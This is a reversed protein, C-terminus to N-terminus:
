FTIRKFEALIFKFNKDGLVYAALFFVIIGIAGGVIIKLYMNDLVPIFLFLFGFMISSALFPTGLEKLQQLISKSFLKRFFYQNVLLAVFRTIIQSMILAKVGFPIAILIGIITLPFSSLDAKLFLDSRGVAKLLGMYVAILPIFLQSIVMWKMLPIMFMWKEGLLILVIPEALIGLLLMIPFVLFSTLGLVRAFILQMKEKDENVSALLPFAVQMIIGSITGSAIGTLQNSRDYFGLDSVSFKKGIIVNYLNNMINSFLGALLLKYGFFFLRFFSEKQFRFSINWKSFFWLLVTEFFAKLLQLAVLAWIGLGWLACVIAGIGAFFNATMNIKGLKKFDISRRLKTKQILSLANIIIVLSVVRTIIVLKPIEFYNSITPATFFLTAYVISSIGLNFVFTTSFDISKPRNMQILSAAMGSDVLTQSISLFITLVGIVGFDSPDLLRALFIGVGFQVFQSFFREMATWFVGLKAKGKLLNLDEDKM